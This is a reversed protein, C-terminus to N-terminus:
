GFRRNVEHIYAVEYNTKRREELGEIATTGFSIAAKGVVLSAGVLSAWFHDGLLASAGITASTVGLFKPDLLCSLTGLTSKLGHKRCAWEYDDLRVAILDEV